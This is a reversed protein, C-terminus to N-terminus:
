RPRITVMRRRESNPPRIIPIFLAKRDPRAIIIPAEDSIRGISHLRDAIFMPYACDDAFSSLALSANGWELMSLAHFVARLPSTLFPIWECPVTKKMLELHYEFGVGPRIFFQVGRAWQTCLDFLSAGEEFLGVDMSCTFFLLMGDANHSVYCGDVHADRYPSPFTESVFALFFAEREDLWEPLESIVQKAPVPAAMLAPSILASVDVTLCREEQFLLSHMEIKQAVERAEPPLDRARSALENCAADYVKRSNGPKNLELFLRGFHGTRFAYNFRYPALQMPDTLMKSTSREGSYQRPIQGPELATRLRDHPMRESSSVRGNRDYSLIKNRFDGEVPEESFLLGINARLCYALDKISYSPAVPNQEGGFYFEDEFNGVPDLLQEPNVDVNYGSAFTFNIRDATCGPTDTDATWIAIRNLTPPMRSWIAPHPDWYKTTQWILGSRGDPYAFRRFPLRITTLSHEPHKELAYYTMVREEDTLADHKETVEFEYRDGHFHKRLTEDLHRSLKIRDTHYRRRVADPSAEPFPHEYQLPWAEYAVNRLRKHRKKLDGAVAGLFDAAFGTGALSPVVEWHSLYLLDGERFLDYANTHEMMLIHALHTVDGGKNEASMYFDIDAIGRAYKRNTIVEGRVLGVVKQDIEARAVVFHFALPEGPEDGERERTIEIHVTAPGCPFSAAKTESTDGLPRWYEAELSNETSLTPTWAFFGHENRQRVITDIVRLEDFYEREADLLEEAIDHFGGSSHFKKPAENEECALEQALRSGLQKLPTDRHSYSIDRSMNELLIDALENKATNWVKAEGDRFVQEKFMGFGGLPLLRTRHLPMPRAAFSSVCEEIDFPKGIPKSLVLAVQSVVMERVSRARRGDGVSDRLAALLEARLESSATFKKRNRRGGSPEAEVVIEMAKDTSIGTTASLTESQFHRRASVEQEDLVDDLPVHEQGEKIKRLEHFSTFGLMRALTEQSRSLSMRQGTRAEFVRRLVKAAENVKAASNMPVKM